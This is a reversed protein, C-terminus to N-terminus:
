LVTTKQALNGLVAFKARLSGCEGGCGQGGGWDEVADTPGPTHSYSPTTGPDASPCLKRQAFILWSTYFVIQVVVKNIM